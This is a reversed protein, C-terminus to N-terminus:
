SYKKLDTLIESYKKQNNERESDGMKNQYAKLLKEDDGDDAMEDAMRYLINDEKYIHQRLISAFSRLDAAAARKDKLGEALNQALSGIAARGMGHEELMCHVPGSDRPMGKEAMWVFLVDEEKMHHQHDAYQKVFDIWAGVDQVDPPATSELRDSLADAVMLYQLILQHEEMLIELAKLM